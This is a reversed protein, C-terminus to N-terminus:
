KHFRDVDCRHGYTECREFDAASSIGRSLEALASLSLELGHGDTTLIKLRLKRASGRKMEVADGV